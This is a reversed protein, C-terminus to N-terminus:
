VEKGIPYDKIVLINLQKTANTCTDIAIKNGFAVAKNTKESLFSKINKFSSIQREELGDEIGNNRVEDAHHHGIIFTKKSSPIPKYTDEIDWLLHESSSFHWDILKPDVGAHSFVFNQTEYVLPMGKIWSNIKDSEETKLHEIEKFSVPEQKLNFISMITKDLGNHIINFLCTGSDLGKDLYEELFADHNGKICIANNEILFRAIKLSDSGRDFNDGLSLLIQGESKKYGAKKLSDILVPYEGHVDSFVFYEKM